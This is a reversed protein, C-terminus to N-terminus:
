RARWSSRVAVDDDLHHVLVDGGVGLEAVAELAFGEQHGPEVVGAGHGEVVGAQAIRVARADDHLVDLAHVELAHEGLVALHAGRSDAADDALEALHELGGVVLADDVAVELGGVQHDDLRVRRALADLDHVEAQGLQDVALDEALDGVGVDVEGDARGAVDARLLDAALLHVVAAVQVGDADHHVLQEGAPQRKLPGVLM